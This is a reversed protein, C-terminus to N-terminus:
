LVVSGKDYLWVLQRNSFKKTYYNTFTMQINRMISPLEMKKKQNFPWHGSTLVQMNFEVGQVNGGSKNDKVFNSM